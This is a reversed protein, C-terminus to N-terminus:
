GLSFLVKIGFNLFPGEAHLELQQPRGEERGRRALGAQKQAPGDPNQLKAEGLLSLSPQPRPGPLQRAMGLLRSTSDLYDALHLCCYM